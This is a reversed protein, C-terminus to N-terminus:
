PRSPTFKKRRRLMTLGGVGLLALSVPEPVINITGNTIDPALTGGGIQVFDSDAGIQSNKLLLDFSEGSFFGTTDITMTLLLGDAPVSVTTNFAVSAQAFQEAGGIPGGTVTNAYTNWMGGSYDISEFVPEADPGTGDGIQAKLNFATVQDTGSVYLQITQGTTNELLDHSGVNIIPAASVVASLGCIMTLSVIACFNVTNNQIRMHKGKEQITIRREWLFM